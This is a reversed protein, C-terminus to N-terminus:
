KSIYKDNEYFHNKRIYSEVAEPVLDLISQGLSVRERIQTSSIPTNNFPLLRIDAQYRKKLENCKESLCNTDRNDRVAALLICNSFIKEPKKWNEIFFLNDAGVIFYLIDDPAVEKLQVLTEYTYTNGPRTIEMDSVSLFPEDKVALKVMEYRNKADLVQMQSKLYSQGSPMLIVEDLAEAQLATKALLIHGNHIPNFTGGLIGTKRRFLKEEM